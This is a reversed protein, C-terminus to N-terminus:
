VRPSLVSVGFRWRWEGREERGAGRGAGRGGDWEGAGAGGAAAREAAAAAGQWEQAMENIPDKTMNEVTKSNYFDQSLFNYASRIRKPNELCSM